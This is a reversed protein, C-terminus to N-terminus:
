GELRGRTGARRWRAVDFFLFAGAEFFRQFSLIGGFRAAAVVSSAGASLTALAVAGFFDGLFVAVGFFAALGFFAAAFFADGFSFAGLFGAAALFTPGGEDM